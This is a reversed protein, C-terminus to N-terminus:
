LRTAHCALAHVPICRALKGRCSNLPYTRAQFARRGSLIPARKSLAGVPFPYTRAQFARRGSLIPVAHSHRAKRRLNAQGDAYLLRHTDRLFWTLRPRSGVALRGRFLRFPSLIKGPVVSTPEPTGQIFLHPAVRFAGQPNEPTPAVTCDRPSDLSSDTRTHVTHRAAFARTNEHNPCDSRSHPYRDDRGM